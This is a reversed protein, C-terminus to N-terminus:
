GGPLLPGGTSMARLSIGALFLGIVAYLRAERHSDAARTAVYAAPLVLALVVGYLIHVATRPPRLGTALVVFGLVVQALYLLEGAALVGWFSGDISQKRFYLWFGYVAIIASFILCATALSRHVQLLGM